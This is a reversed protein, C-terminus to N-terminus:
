DSTVSKGALTGTAFALLLNFGGCPGAPSLLEGAFFLGPVLRSELTRPHIDKVAVGGLTIMANAPDEIGTVALRTSKLARALAIIAPKSAHDLPGTTLVGSARVLELALRSPIQGAPAFGELARSAAHRGRKTLHAEVEGLTAAPLFDVVVEAPGHPKHPM